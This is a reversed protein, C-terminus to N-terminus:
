RIFNTMPGRELEVREVGAADAAEMCQLLWGMQRGVNRMVRLGEIDQAVQEPTNGHVMNWYSSGVTMMGAIGFYKNIVDLSATTGARRASVVAAAPKGAWVDRSTSYFLRDFFSLVRGSPHAYYVPSGFVFGNASRAQEAFENVADDDFICRGLESCKGCAICDRLPKNGVDMISWEVGREDLGKGVECLATYTCGRPHSSGNVM